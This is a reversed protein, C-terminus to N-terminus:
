NCHQVLKPVKRAVAFFSNKAKGMTDQLDRLRKDLYTIYSEVNRILLENSKLVIMNEIYHNEAEIRSNTAKSCVNSGLLMSKTETIAIMNENVTNFVFYVYGAVNCLNDYREGLTREEYRNLIELNEGATMANVYDFSGPSADEAIGHLSNKNDITRYEKYKREITAPVEGEIDEAIENIRERREQGKEDLSVEPYIEEVEGNLRRMMVDFIHDFLYYSRPVNTNFYTKDEECSNTHQEYFTHGELNKANLYQCCNKKLNLFAVNLSDKDIINSHLVLDDKRLSEVLTFSGNEWYKGIALACDGVDDAFVNGLRCLSSIIGIISRKSLNM